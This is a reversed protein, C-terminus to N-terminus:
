CCWAMVQVLTSKDDTLDWPMWRLPYDKSSTFIGILLVLNFIATKFHCGSRRPALSNIPAETVKGSINRPPIADACMWSICMMILMPRKGSVCFQPNRMCRSHRSRKGCWRSWLFGSTKSGPMCWPVHTMCTGHHMDPDSVRPPPSFTGPMGPAHAVRLKAYRSLPGHLDNPVQNTAIFWCLRNDSPQVYKKFPQYQSWLLPHYRRIQSGLLKSSAVFEVFSLYKKWFGPLYFQNTSKGFTKKPLPWCGDTNWSGFKSRTNWVGESHGSLIPGIKMLVDFPRWRKM